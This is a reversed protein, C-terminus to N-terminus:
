ANAPKDDLKFLRRLHMQIWDIAFQAQETSTMVLFKARIKELEVALLPVASDLADVAIRILTKPNKFLNKLWDFM